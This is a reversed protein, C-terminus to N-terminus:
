LLGELRNRIEDLKDQEVKDVDNNNEDFKIRLASKEYSARVKKVGYVNLSDELIKECSGCTMGSIHVIIDGM